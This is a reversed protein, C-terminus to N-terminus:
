NEKEKEKEKKFFTWDCCNLLFEPNRYIGDEISHLFLSIAPLWSAFLLYYLQGYLWVIM